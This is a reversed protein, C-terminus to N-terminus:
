TAERVAGCSASQSASQAIQSSECAAGSSASWWAECPASKSSDCCGQLQREALRQVRREIHGRVRGRLQCEVLGRVRREGLIQARGQLQREALREGRHEQLGRVCGHLRREALREM